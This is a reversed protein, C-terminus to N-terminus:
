LVMELTEVDESVTATSAQLRVPGPKVGIGRLGEETPVDAAWGCAAVNWVAAHRGTSM